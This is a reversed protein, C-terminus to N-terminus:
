SCTQYSGLTVVNYGPYDSSGSAMFGSVVLGSDRFRLGQLGSGQDRSGVIRFM